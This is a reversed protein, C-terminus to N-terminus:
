QRLWWPLLKRCQVYNCMVHLESIITDTLQLVFNLLLTTSNTPLNEFSCKFSIRSHQLNYTLKLCSIRATVCDFLSPTDEMRKAGVERWLEEQLPFHCGVGTDKGPFDRPCLRRTPQLGHPRPSCCVVSRRLLARGRPCHKGARAVTFKVQKKGLKKKKPHNLIKFNIHLLFLLSFCSSCHWNLM